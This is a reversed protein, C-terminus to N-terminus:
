RRGRKGAQINALLLFMGVGAMVWVTGTNFGSSPAAPPTPANPLTVNLLGAAAQGPYTEFLPLPTETPAAPGYVNTAPNYMIPILDSTTYSDTSDGLSHVHVAAPGIPPGTTHSACESCCNGGPACGKLQRRLVMNRASPIQVTAIM